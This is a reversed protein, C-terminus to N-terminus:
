RACAAEMGSDMFKEHKIIVIEGAVPAVEKKFVHWPGHVYYSSLDSDLPM